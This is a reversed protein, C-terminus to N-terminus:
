SPNDENYKSTTKTPKALQAHLIRPDLVINNILPEIATTDMNFFSHLTSSAPDDPWQLFSLTTDLFSTCHLTHPTPTHCNRNRAQSPPLHQNNLLFALEYEEGEIPLRRSKAPGQKYTLTTRRPLTVPHQQTSGVPLHQTNTSPPDAPTTPPTANHTATPM